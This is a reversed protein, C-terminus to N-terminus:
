SPRPRPGSRSSISSRLFGTPTTRNHVPQPSSKNGMRDLTGYFGGYQTDPGKKKWFAMVEASLTALRMKIAALRTKIAPDSPNMVVGTGGTGNAAGGAGTSASGGSGSSVASGANGNDTGGSGTSSSGTGEGDPRTEPSKACSGCAFASISVALSFVLWTRAGLMM